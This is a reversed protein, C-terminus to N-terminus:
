FRFLVGLAPGYTVDHLDVPQYSGFGTAVSYKRTSVIQARYGLTASFGLWSIPLDTGWSLGLETLLYDADFGTQGADDAAGANLRLRGYAFTGYLSLAQWLSSAGSLGVTPGSWRYPTQGFTQQVQKYGVTVALAPLVYFGVNGDFERRKAELGTVGGTTPQVLGGLDFTTDAFYSGAVLWRGYRASVQPIYAVHTDSAVSEIVRIPTERGTNVPDWSSWEPAWAKAGVAVQWDDAVADAALAMGSLGAVLLAAAM